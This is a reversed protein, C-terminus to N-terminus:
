RLRGLLGGHGPRFPERVEPVSRATVRQAFCPMQMTEYCGDRKTMPTQECHSKERVHAARLSSLQCASQCQLNLAELNHLAAHHSGTEYVVSFSHLAQRCRSSVQAHARRWVHGQQRDLEGSPRAGFDAGALTLSNRTMCYSHLDHLSVGLNRTLCKNCCFAFVIADCSLVIDSIGTGALIM